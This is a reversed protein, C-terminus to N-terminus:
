RSHSKKLQYGSISLVFYVTIFTPLVAAGLAMSKRLTRRRPIIMIFTQGLTIVTNLAGNLVFMSQERRNVMLSRVIPLMTYNMIRGIVMTPVFTSLIRELPPALYVQQKEMKTKVPTILEMLQKERPRNSLSTAM